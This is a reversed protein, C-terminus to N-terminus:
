YYIEPSIETQALVQKEEFITKGDDNETLPNLFSWDLIVNTLVSNIFM